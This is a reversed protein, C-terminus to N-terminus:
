AGVLVRRMAEEFEVVHRRMAQDAREADGDRIAELIERHDLVAQELERAQDLALYWIRLALVYYQELSAELFQNHAARYVQRHIREDLAMLERQDLEEHRELEDLLSAVTDRDEDTAREAALRAASSELVTRVEALSALDRIEVRTVFMGRRPYVEVLREQALTRLAERIPTRGIGLQEMLRREDIVGGPRLELSVIM